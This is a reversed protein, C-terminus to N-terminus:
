ADASQWPVCNVPLRPEARGFTCLPGTGLRVNCAGRNICSRMEEVTVETRDIWFPAVKVIHAPRENPEGPAGGEFGMVFEGGPVRLMGNQMPLKTREVPEEAAPPPQPLENEPQQEGPDPNVEPDGAPSAPAQGQGFAVGTLAVCSLAFFCLRLVPKAGISANRRFIRVM